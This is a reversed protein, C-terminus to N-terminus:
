SFSFSFCIDFDGREPANAPEESGAFFFLFFPASRSILPIARAVDIPPTNAAVLEIVIFSESAISNPCPM